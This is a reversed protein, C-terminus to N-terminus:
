GRFRTVDSPARGAAVAAWTRRLYARDAALDGRRDMYDRRYPTRLHYAGVSLDVVAVLRGSARHFFDRHDMMRVGEDWGIRRLSATRAVDNQAVMLRVPLGDIVEGHERLPELSGETMRRTGVDAVGSDYPLAIVETRADPPAVPRPSDDVVVIRGDFVTRASRLFRRCVDPRLFTKVVITLHEAVDAHEAPTPASAFVRDRATLVALETRALLSHGARLPAGAPHRLARSLTRTLRPRLSM